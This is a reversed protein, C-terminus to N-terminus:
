IPGAFNVRILTYTWQLMLWILWLLLATYLLIVVTWLAKAPWSFGRSVWLLPLGFGALAGFTVLLVFWRTDVLGRSPQRGAADEGGTGPAMVLDAGCRLCRRAGARVEATCAPCVFTTVSESAM